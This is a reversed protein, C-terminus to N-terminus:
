FISLQRVVVGSTTPIYIFYAGKERIRIESSNPGVREVPSDLKKGVINVISLTGTIEAPHKVTISVDQKAPNPYIKITQRTTEYSSSVGEVEVSVIVSCARSDTIVVSYTGAGLDTRSLGSGGDPWVAFYPPYGGGVELIASGNFGNDSPSTSQSVATLSDLVTLELHVISDFLGSEPSIFQIRYSGNTNFGYINDGACITDFRTREIFSSVVVTDRGSCGTLFNQAQLIYTGSSDIAQTLNNEDSAYSGDETRWVYDSYRARFPARGPLSVTDGARFHFDEGADVHPVFPHPTTITKDAFVQLCEGASSTSTCLLQYSGGSSSRYNPEQSVLIGNKYWHFNYGTNLTDLFARFTRSYPRLILHNSECDFETIISLTFPANRPFLGKSFPMECSNGDPMILEAIFAIDTGTQFVVNDIANAINQGAANSINLYNGSSELMMESAECNGSAIELLEVDVEMYNHTRTNRSVCGPGKLEYTVTHTGSTPLNSVPVSEPDSAAEDVFYYTAPTNAIVLESHESGQVPVCYNTSSFQQIEVSECGIELIELDYSTSRTCGSDNMASAEILVRRGLDRPTYLVSTGNGIVQGNAWWTVSSFDDNVQLKVPENIVAVNRRASSASQIVLEEIGQCPTGLEDGRVLGAYRTQLVGHMRAIQGATFSNQSLETHSRLSSYMINAAYDSVDELFYRLPTQDEADTSCTNDGGTSNMPPTDVIGDGQWISITNDCSSSDVGKANIHRLNLIHGLEHAAISSRPCPDDRRFWYDSQVAMLPGSNPSNFPAFALGGVSGCPRLNAICDILYIPVVSRFDFSNAIDTGGPTFMSVIDDRFTTGPLFPNDSGARYIGSSATGASTRSILRVRIRTDLSTTNGDCDMGSLRDNMLELGVLIEADSLHSGSGAVDGNRYTHYVVVPIEVIDQTDTFKVKNAILHLFDLEDKREDNVIPDELTEAISPKIFICNGEQSLGIQALFAMAVLLFLTRFM